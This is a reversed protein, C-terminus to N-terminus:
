RTSTAGTAPASAGACPPRPSWAPACAGTWTPACCCALRPRQLRAGPRRDLHRAARRRGRRHAPDATELDVADRHGFTSNMSDDNKPSIMELPYSRACHPTATARNSRRRTNRADPSDLHCKGDPTGFSGEAFPLFPESGPAVNLRVSHERDLRELTIGELFPHGSDLLTRIMDDETEAFCPDDFGM